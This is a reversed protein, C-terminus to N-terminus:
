DIVATVHIANNVCFVHTIKAIGYKELKVLNRRYLDPTQSVDRTIGHYEDKVSDYVNYYVIATTVHDFQNITM